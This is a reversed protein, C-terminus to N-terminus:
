CKGCHSRSSKALCSRRKIAQGRKLAEKSLNQLRQASRADLWRDKEDNVCLWWLLKQKGCSKKVCEDGAKENKRDFYARQHLRKKCLMSEQERMFELESSLHELGCCSRPEWNDAEIKEKAKALDWEIDKRAAQIAKKM